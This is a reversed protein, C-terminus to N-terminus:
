FLLALPPTTRQPQHVQARHRESSAAAKEAAAARANAAELAAELRGQGFRLPVFLAGHMLPLELVVSQAM